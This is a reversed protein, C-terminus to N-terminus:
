FWPKTFLLQFIMNLKDDDDNKESQDV